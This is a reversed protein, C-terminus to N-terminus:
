SMGGITPGFSTSAADLSTTVVSSSATMRLGKIKKSSLGSLTFRSTTRTGNGSYYETNILVAKWPKNNKYIIYQAYSDNGADSAIVHNGGALALTAMYGGYFPANVQNESWWNFSAIARTLKSVTWVPSPFPPPPSFCTPNCTLHVSTHVYPIRSCMGQNITGQHYFLREIGVSTARLTKDLIQLAGGFTADTAIDQGHFGTEGSADSVTLTNESRWRPPSRSGGHEEEM